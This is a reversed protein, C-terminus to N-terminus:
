TLLSKDNQIVFMDINYMESGQKKSLEYQDGIKFCKFYKNTVDTKNMIMLSYKDDKDNYKDLISKYQKVRDFMSHSLYEIVNEIIGDVSVTKINLFNLFGEYLDQHNIFLGKIQIFSSTNATNSRRHILVNCNYIIFLFSCYEGLQNRKYENMIRIFHEYIEQQKEFRQRVKQM